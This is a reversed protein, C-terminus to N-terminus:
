HEIWNELIKRGYGTMYSEPHFQLGKIDYKRHSFGMVIEDISKATIELCSPFNYSDVAWSHYLGVTFQDPIGNFLYEKRDVVQIKEEIGHYVKRLNFLSAGYSEAIAQHGLCVGLISKSEGWEVVIEKMISVDSPIGPGPSFLIKDYNKISVIGSEDNRVIKYRSVGHEKIIQALNFTFSDYNDIILIDPM